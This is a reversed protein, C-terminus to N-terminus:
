TQSNTVAHVVVHWAERDQGIEWLKGLNMDMSNTIGDLWRMGQWRDLRYLLWKFYSQECIRKKLSGSFPEAVKELGCLQITKATQNRLGHKVVINWVELYM